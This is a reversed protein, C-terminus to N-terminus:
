GDYLSVGVPKRIAGLETPTRVLGPKLYRSSFLQPPTEFFVCHLTLCSVFNFLMQRVRLRFSDPGVPLIHVICGPASQSCFHSDASDAFGDRYSDACGDLAKRGRPVGVPSDPRSAARVSFNSQRLRM